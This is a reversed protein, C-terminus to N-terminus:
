RFSLLHAMYKPAYQTDIFFVKWTLSQLEENTQIVYKGDQITAAYVSVMWGDRYGALFVSATEGAHPTLTILNDETVSVATLASPIETGTCIFAECESCYLGDCQGSQTGNPLTSRKELTHVAATKLPSSGAISVASWDAGGYHVAKLGTCAYFALRELSTVTEPLYLETLAGCLSFSNEPVSAIPAHIEAHQLDPCQMVAGMEMETVTEPIIISTINAGCISERWLKTVSQPVTFSGTRGTPYSILEEGTTDLLCNDVAKLYPNDAAVTIETLQTCFSFLGTGVQSVNSPIHISSLPAANFAASGISELSEPLEVATLPTHSFASAGISQLGAPLSIRNLSTCGFFAYDGISTLGAPLTIEALETCAQCLNKSVATLGEPLELSLLGTGSFAGEGIATVTKPIELETLSECGRLANEEITQLNAPLTLETMATCNRVVSDSLVTLGSPLTLTQLASCDCFAGEGIETISDPLTLKQLAICCEFASAGISRVGEEVTLDTLIRNNQFAYAAISTVSIGNLKAPVTATKALGRYGTIEVTGNVIHSEWPHEDLDALYADYDTQAMPEIRTIRFGFDRENSDALLTNMALTFRNGGLVITKGALADGTYAFQNGAADTLVLEDFDFTGSVYTHSSFTVKLAATDESAVHELEVDSKYPHASEYVAAEPLLGHEQAYLDAVSGEPAHIILWECDSFATEDISTVNATLSIQELHTCAHFANKSITTVSDPVTVARLSICYYFSGNPIESVGSPITIATLKQCDWFGQYPLESLSAPLRVSELAQCYRLVRRGITQVSDPLTVSVLKPCDSFAEEGVTVVGDPVTVSVTTEIGAMAGSGLSTVPKGDLQAPVTVNEESGLYRLLCIEGNEEEYLWQETEQAQVPMTGFRFFVLTMLLCLAPTLLKWIQKKM